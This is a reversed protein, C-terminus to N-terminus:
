TLKDLAKLLDAPEARKTYDTDVFSYLIKGDQGIVFTAPVPLEWEPNGQSKELDIGFEKYLKKLEPTVTFVLGLKRAYQNDKDTLIEFAIEQQTAMDKTLDPKEPTIAVLSAGRKKFEPLFSQYSNLQANCYPCWSGRYFAVVVPGKKRLEKLAVQKGDANPLSFDEIRSGVKPAKKALQSQRLKEAAAEMVRKKEGSAKSSKRMLRLQEGLSVSLLKKNAFDALEKETTIGSVRGHEVRGLYAILTSQASVKIQRNFEKEKDYDVSFLRLGKLKGADELKALNKKQVQCVPCWDAHFHLLIKQGAKQAALFAEQSFPTSAWAAHSAGLFVALVIAFGFKKM